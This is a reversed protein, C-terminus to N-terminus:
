DSVLMEQDGTWQYATHNMPLPLDTLWWASMEQVYCMEIDSIHRFWAGSQQGTTHHLVQGPQHFSGDSEPRCVTDLHPIPINDSNCVTCYMIVDGFTVISFVFQLM